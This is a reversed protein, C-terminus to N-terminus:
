KVTHLSPKLLSFVSASVCPKIRNWAAGNRFLLYCNWSSSFFYYHYSLTTGLCDDSCGCYYFTKRDLHLFHKIFRVINCCCVLQWRSSSFEFYIQLEPKWSVLCPTCYLFHFLRDGPFFKQPDDSVSLVSFAICLKTSLFLM